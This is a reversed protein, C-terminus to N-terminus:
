KILDRENFNAYLFNNLQSASNIANTNLTLSTPM